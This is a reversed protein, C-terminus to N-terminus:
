LLSLSLFGFCFLSHAPSPFSFTITYTFPYHKKFSHFLTLIFTFPAHTFPSFTHINFSLSLTLFFSPIFPTLSHTYFLSLLFCSYFTHTLLLPSHFLLLLLFHTFAFSSLLTFLTHLSLSFYLSFNSLLSLFSHIHSSYFSLLSSSPSFFPTPHSVSSSFLFM